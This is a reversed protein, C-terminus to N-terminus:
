GDEPTRCLGQNLDKAEHEGSGQIQVVRVSVLVPVRELIADLRSCGRARTQASGALSETDFKRGKGLNTAISLTPM